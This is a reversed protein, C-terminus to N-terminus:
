PRVARISHLLSGATSSNSITVGSRAAHSVARSSPDRRHCCAPCPLPIQISRAPSAEHTTRTEVNTMKRIWSSFRRCRPRAPPMYQPLQRCSLVSAAASMASPCSTSDDGGVGGDAGVLGVDALRSQHKAADANVQLLFPSQKAAGGPQEIPQPVPRPEDLPQRLAAHADVGALQPVHGDRHQAALRAMLVFFDVLEDM